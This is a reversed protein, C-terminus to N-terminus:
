LAGFRGRLLYNLTLARIFYNFQLACSFLDVIEVCVSIILLILFLIM